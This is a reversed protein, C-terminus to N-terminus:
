PICDKTLENLVIILAANDGIVKGLSWLLPLFFSLMAFFALMWRRDWTWEEWVEIREVVRDLWDHTMMCWDPRRKSRM